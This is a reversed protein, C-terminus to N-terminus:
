ETGPPPEISPDALRPRVTAAFCELREVVKEPERTGFGLILGEAGADLFQQLRATMAATDGHIRNAPGRRDKRPPAETQEVELRPVVRLGPHRARVARIEDADVFRPVGAPHWVDGLEQARRVAAASSGGIWLEPRPQPPPGFRMDEFSWFRGAFSREGSWLARMLRLSEDMRPGRDAFPMGMAEFERGVWGAAVGLLLRGGSLTQLTAAEKAFHVPNHIPVVILSTGLRLRRTQTALWALSLMPELVAGYPFELEPPVLVHETVWVSDFGLREATQAILAMAEPSADRDYNPLLVGIQM